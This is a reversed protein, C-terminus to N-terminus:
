VALRDGGTHEPPAQAIEIVLQALMDAAEPNGLEASSAAMSELSAPHYVFGSIAQGLIQASLNENAIIRAAGAAELCGANAAQHDDTAHPYPILIAPLGLATIEAITTAGARSVVLDAAGYALGMDEIYPFINYKVTDHGRRVADLRGKFREFELEGTIHIIQLNHAHRFLDYAEIAAENLRRAGRSGGFILVTVQRESLGLAKLAQKRGAKKVSERVPNGVVEVRVDPGLTERGADFTLAVVRARRSLWRNALGIVANQEHILIPYGMRGAVMAVPYSAFGGMGVVVSPQFRRMIGISKLLSRGLGSAFGLAAPSPRRPMGRIPLTEM